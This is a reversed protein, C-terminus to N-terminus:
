RKELLLTTQMAGDPLGRLSTGGRVAEQGIGVSGKVAQDLEAAPIQSRACVAYIREPGAHGDLVAGGPLAQAGSIAVGPVIQSIQGDGDISVISLTCENAAQVRFRLAASAPVVGRDPLPVAGESLGAYVTLKFANGKTGVYDASPGRVVVGIALAAAVPVLFIWWPRAKPLLGDLTAPYVYRRFDEGEREMRALRARCKECEGIHPALGSAKDLLHAELKLDSPHNM